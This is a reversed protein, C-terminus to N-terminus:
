ETAERLCSNARDAALDWSMAAACARAREGLSKRLTEDNLWKSITRAMADSDAPAIFEGGGSLLEPLPSMTTAIVPCACAAAEVAPLGFGENASPLLTAVAGSFLHRLEGDPLFGTWKVTSETGCERVIAELRGREQMFVDGTLTGVLLLFLNKQSGQAAAHARIAADVYKHPNFGGVYVLWRADAPLGIKRAAAAIEATSDSPRFEASPAEGTVRLKAAPIKLVETLERAAFDSVTLVLRAQRKALWVKANWFLRAKTNPLTLHPFREAIADHITVVMRQGYPMPFYTYVTPFFFVDVRASKVAKTMKWMDGPSRAGDAAAAETPPKGLDVPVIRANKPLGTLRAANTSEIFFSFEDGPSREVMRPLLERVFRGYGRGNVWSTADVGVKM